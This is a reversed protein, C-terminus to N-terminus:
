LQAPQSEPVKISKERERERERERARESKAAANVPSKCKTGM